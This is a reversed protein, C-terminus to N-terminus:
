IYTQTTQLTTDLICCFDLHTVLSKFNPGIEYFWAFKIQSIAWLNPELFIDPQSPVIDLGTYYQECFCAVTAM